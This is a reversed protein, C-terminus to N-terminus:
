GDYKGTMLKGVFSKGTESDMAIGGFLVTLAYRSTALMDTFVIPIYKGTYCKRPGQGIFSTETRKRSARPEPFVLDSGRGLHVSVGCRIDTARPRNIEAM